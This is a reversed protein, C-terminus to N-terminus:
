AAGRARGSVINSSIEAEPHVLTRRAGGRTVETHKLLFHYARLIERLSAEPFETRLWALLDEAAADRAAFRLEVQAESLPQRFPRAQPALKVSAPNPRRYHAQALWSAIATGFPKRTRDEEWPDM